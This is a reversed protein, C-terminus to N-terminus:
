QRWQVGSNSCATQLQLRSNVQQDRTNHYDLLQPFEYLVFFCAVYFTSNDNM